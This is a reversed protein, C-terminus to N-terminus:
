GGSGPAVERIRDITLRLHRHMAARAKDADRSAIAEVIADHEEQSEALAEPIPKGELMIM